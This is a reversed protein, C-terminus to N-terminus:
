RLRCGLLCVAPFCLRLTWFSSPIVLRLFLFSGAALHGRVAIESGSNVRSSAPAPLFMKVRIESSCTDPKVYHPTSRARYSPWTPLGLGNHLSLRLINAERLPLKKYRLSKIRLFKDRGRPSLSLLPYISSPLLSSVTPFALSLLSLLICRPFSVLSSRLSFFLFKFILQVVFYSFSFLLFLFVVSVFLSYSSLFLPSVVIDVEAAESAAAWVPLPTLTPLVYLDQLRKTCCIRSVPM